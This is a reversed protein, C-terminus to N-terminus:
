VKVVQPQHIVNESKWNIMVDVHYVVVGEILGEIEVCQFLTLFFIFLQNVWTDDIACILRRCGGM